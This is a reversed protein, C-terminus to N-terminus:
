VSKEPATKYYNEKSYKFIDEQNIMILLKLCNSTFYDKFKLVWYTGNREEVGEM